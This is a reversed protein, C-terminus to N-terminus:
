STLEYHYVVTRILLILAPADYFDLVAVNEGSDRGTNEMGTPTM